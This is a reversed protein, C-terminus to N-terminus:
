VRPNGALFLKGFRLLHADWASSEPRKRRLKSFALLCEKVTLAEAAHSVVPSQIAPKHFISSPRRVFLNTASSFKLPSSPGDHNAVAHASSDVRFMSLCCVKHTRWAASPLITTEVMITIIIMMMMMIIIIFIIFMVLIITISRSRSGDM